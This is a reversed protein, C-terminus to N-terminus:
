PTVEALRDLLAAYAALHERRPTRLGREWRSVTVRDVGLTEAVSHLTLGARVRLQRRRHPAPLRPRSDVQAILGEIADTSM